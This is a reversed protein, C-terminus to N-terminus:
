CGSISEADGGGVDSESLVDIIGERMLWKGKM